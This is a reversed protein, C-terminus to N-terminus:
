HAILRFCSVNVARGIPRGRPFLEPCRSDGDEDCDLLPGPERSRLDERRSSLHTSLPCMCQRGDGRACCM